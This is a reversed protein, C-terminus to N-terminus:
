FSYQLSASALQDRFAYVPANSDRHEHRYTLGGELRPRLDYRIRLDEYCISDRRQTTADLAMAPGVFNQKEYGAEFEILLRMVPSWTPGISAGRSVFYNSEADIYARVDRWVKLKAGIQVDPQYTVNFHWVDGSFDRNAGAALSARSYSRNVYGAGIDFATVKGLMWNIYANMVKEDYDRDTGAIAPAATQRFRVDTYHSDVGLIDVDSVRYELGVGGTRAHYDDVTRDPNSHDAHENRITGKIRWKPGVDFNVGAYYDDSTVIDRSYFQTNAFDALRRHYDGGVTGSLAGALHWNWELRADGSTNDLDDNKSFRNDAVAGTASITQLGVRWLADLGLSLTNFRDSVVGRGGATAPASRPLRFLNDDFSLRDNVFVVLPRSRPQPLLPDAAQAGVAMGTLGAALILLSRTQHKM